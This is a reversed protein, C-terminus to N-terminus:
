SRVGDRNETLSKPTLLGCALGFVAAMSITRLPYDVASHALLVLIMLSAARSMEAEERSTLWAAGSRWLWWLGVLGALALAAWGGDVWLELYDDHAHNLFQESILQPPEHIQYAPVFAGFGAGVPSFSQATHIITPVAAIRLDEAPDKSFRGSLGGFAFLFILGAGLIITGLLSLALLNRGPYTRTRMVMLLSGILAVGALIVGARSLTIGLGVILLLVGGLAVGTVVLATTGGRRILWAALSVTLPIACVLLAAQHNRNAFFGVGADDNTISYIRLPSEQGGTLQLAALFLSATAGILVALALGRRGASNCRAAALFMAAPAILGPLLNLTADPTLSLPLAPLPLGATRFTEVLYARGPLRSWTDPPLPVLQVVALLAVLAFLGLGVLTPVSPRDRPLMWLCYALLGLCLLRAALSTLAEGHTAGGLVLTLFLIAAAVYAFGPARESSQRSAM